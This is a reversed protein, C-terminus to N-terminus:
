PQSMQNCRAHLTSAHVNQNTLQTGSLIDCSWAVVSSVYSVNRVKSEGVHGSLNLGLSHTLLLAPTTHFVSSFEFTLRMTNSHSEFNVASILNLRPKLRPKRTHMDTENMCFRQKDFVLNIQSQFNYTTLLKAKETYTTRICLEWFIEFFLVFWQIDNCLFFKLLM